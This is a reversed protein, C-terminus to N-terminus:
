SIHIVNEPGRVTWVTYKQVKPSPSDVGLIELRAIFEGLVVKGNKLHMEIRGLM